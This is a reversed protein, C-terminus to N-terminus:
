KYNIANCQLKGTSHNYTKSHSVPITARIEHIHSLISYYSMISSAYLMLNQRTVILVGVSSEAEGPVICQFTTGNLSATVNEVTLSFDSLHFTFPRPIYQWYYVTEKIKWDPVRVSGEFSCQFRVDSGETVTTDQPQALFVM